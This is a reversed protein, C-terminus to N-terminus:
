STENADFSMLKAIISQYQEVKEPDNKDNKSGNQFEKL